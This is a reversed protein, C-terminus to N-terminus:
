PLRSEDQSGASSKWLFQELAKSYEMVDKNSVGSGQDVWLSFIVIRENEKDPAVVIIPLKWGRGAVIKGFNHNFYLRWAEFAGADAASLGGVNETPYRCMLGCGKMSEPLQGLLAARKAIIVSHIAEDAMADSMAEEAHPGFLIYADTATGPPLSGGSNEDLRFVPKTVGAPAKPEAPPAPESPPGGLLDYYGSLGSFHEECLVIVRNRVRLWREKGGDARLTDGIKQMQGSINDYARRDRSQYFSADFLLKKIKQAITEDKDEIRGEQIRRERAAKERIMAFIREEESPVQPKSKQEKPKGSMWSFLGM